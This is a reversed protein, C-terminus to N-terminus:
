KVTDYQWTNIGGFEKVNTYGLEALAAAAIKSRSGSRCYVLILQDKDTLTKGALDTIQDHPIMIADPIHGSDYEEQTRVDLICISSDNDMIEKAEEQTIQAYSASAETETATVDNRTEVEKVDETDAPNNTQEQMSHNEQETPNTKQCGALGITVLLITIIILYTNKM